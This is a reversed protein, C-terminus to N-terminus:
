LQVKNSTTKMQKANLVEYIFNEITQESMGDVLFEIKSGGNSSIAIISQKSLYRLYMFVFATFVGVIPIIQDLASNNSKNFIFSILLSLLSYYIFNIKSTYKNEVSSINELFISITYNKGWSKNNMFVRYNTLIVNETNSLLIRKEDKLLNM